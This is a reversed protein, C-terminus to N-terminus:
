TEEVRGALQSQREAIWAEAHAKFAAFHQRIVADAAAIDEAPAAEGLDQELKAIADALQEAGYNAVVGKFSHFTSHARSLDGASVAAFGSALVTSAEAFIGELSDIVSRIRNARERTLHNLRAADFVLRVERGAADGAAPLSADEPLLSSITHLLEHRDIPKPILDNMGAAVYQERQSNLVGATMAVIPRTYHCKTRLQETAAIGDLVPMQIDMLIIDFANPQAEVKAVAEAGNNAIDIDVGIDNLMSRAIAQNFVNDEVLLAKVGKLSARRELAQRPKAVLQQGSRTLAAEQLADILTPAIVPKILTADFVQQTAPTTAAARQNNALLLIAACSAPLGLARLRNLVYTPGRNDLDSDLLVFDVAHMFERQEANELEQWSSFSHQHWQWPAFMQRLSACSAPHDDLLLVHKPSPQLFAPQANPADSVPLMLDFLFRSGVHPESFLQIHSGMLAVIRSCIVLGLGTGGFRRSISADAQFFAKFLRGQQDADMGIGTDSVCFRLHQKGDCVQGDAEISLVVEGADTFKIANSVLNILVQQLRLPDAVLRRKVTPEVQIVLEINKEGCSVSMMVAVRSLVEHLDFSIPTLEMAGAEIKSFDLIDNIIGLLAEGSSRIMHIYRQKDGATCSRELLQAAGLVANLPTRIEHSMNAVFESKSRSVSEAEEKANALTREIDKQKSVDRIAVVTHSTGRYGIPVLMVSATFGPGNSAPVEFSELERPASADDVVLDVPLLQVVPLGILGGQQYHFLDHASRNAKVIRASSDVVILADPALEFFVEAEREKAEVLQMQESLSEQNREHELRLREQSRQAHRNILHLSILVYFLLTDVVIGAFLVYLPQRGEANDVLTQQPASYLVTWPRGQLQMTRTLTFQPGPTQALVNLQQDSDYLLNDANMQEGDYIEFAIDADGAGLIGRMLDSARFPAYVWGRFSERRQELTQPIKPSSYVPLYTLFGKQTDAATEQVLTIVGSTAADGSDRARQMAERRLESAWMDYGFARRNRWDFPEIYVISSYQERAGPPRVEYEDFGEARVQAVHEAVEAPELPVAFGMGQIGPLRRKLQLSNVFERWEQRTISDSANFFGVGSRLAQEYIAMREEIAVEVEQARFHFRDEVRARLQASSLWYALFTLLLSIALIVWGALPNHVINVSRQLRGLLSTAREGM